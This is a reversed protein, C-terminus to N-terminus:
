ALFSYPDQLRHSLNFIEWQLSSSFIPHIYIHLFHTLTRPYLSGSFHPTPPPVGPLVIIGGSYAIYPCVM